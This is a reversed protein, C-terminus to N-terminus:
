TSIKKYVEQIFEKGYKEELRKVIFHGLAMDQFHDMFLTNIISGGAAGILPLAESATKETIQVSFREAIQTFLRILAPAGEEFIGKEVIFDAAEAISKALAMRVAIYGSDASDDKKTPGGLAFVEICDLKTKVNSISFGENRAVDCISRMMITTSIPLEIALAGLGLFGGVGGTFFVALKHLNNRKAVGVTNNMTFVALQAAKLLADKTILGIKENWEQPLYDFGKEIPKGIFNSIKVALGPNELILKAAKLDELDKPNLEKNEENIAIEM